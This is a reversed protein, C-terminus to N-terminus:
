RKKFFLFLYPFFIIVMLDNALYRLSIKRLHTMRAFASPLSERRQLWSSDDVPFLKISLRQFLFLWPQIAKRITLNELGTGLQRLSTVFSQRFFTRVLQVHVHKVATSLLLEFM